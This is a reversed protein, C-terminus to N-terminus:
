SRNEPIKKLIWTSDQRTWKWKDFFFNSKCELKWISGFYCSCCKQTASMSPRTKGLCWMMVTLRAALLHFDSWPWLMCQPKKPMQALAFDSYLGFWSFTFNKTHGPLPSTGTPRGCSRPLSPPPPAPRRWGRCLANSRASRDTTGRSAPSVCSAQALSLWEGLWASLSKLVLWKKLSHYVTSEQKM